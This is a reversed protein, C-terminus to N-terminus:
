VHNNEQNEENYSGTEQNFDPDGTLEWEEFQARQMIGSAAFWECTYLAGAKSFTVHLIKVLEDRMKRASEKDNVACIEGIGFKSEFKM